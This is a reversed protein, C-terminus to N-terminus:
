GGFWRRWWPRRLEAVRAALMAAEAEAVAARAAVQRLEAELDAKEAQVTQLDQRADALQQRMVGALGEALQQALSLMAADTAPPITALAVSAQEPPAAVVAKTRRRKAVPEAAPQWDSPVNNSRALQDAIQQHTLGAGTQEAIYGLLRVDGATLQRPGGGPQGGAGSSFFPAYLSGWRSGPGPTYNRLSAESVRVAQAAQRASFLPQPSDPSM